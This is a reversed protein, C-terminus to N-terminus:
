SGGVKGVIQEAPESDAQTLEVLFRARAAPRAALWALRLMQVEAAEASAAQMGDRIRQRVEPDAMRLKGSIEVSRARLTEAIRAKSEPSHKRDLKVMPESVHPCLAKFHSKTNLQLEKRAFWPCRDVPIL